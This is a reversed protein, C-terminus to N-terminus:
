THPFPTAMAADGGVAGNSNNCPMKNMVNYVGSLGLDGPDEVLPPPMPMAAVMDNGPHLIHQGVLIPESALGDCNVAQNCMSQEAPHTDIINSSSQIGQMITSKPATTADIIDDYSMEGGVSGETSQQQPQQQQTQQQQQMKQQMKQQQQQVVHQQVMQQQQKLQQQKQQQQLQHHLQQRQQMQHQQILQLQHQQQMLQQEREQQKVQPVLYNVSLVGANRDVKKEAEGNMVVAQQSNVKCNCKEQRVVQEELYGQENVRSRTEAGDTRRIESNMGGIGNQNINMDVNGADLSVPTNDIAIVDNVLQSLPDATRNAPGRRSNPDDNMMVDVGHDGNRNGGVQQSAANSNQSQFPVHSQAHAAVPAPALGPVPIPVTPNPPNPFRMQPTVPGHSITRDQTHAYSAPQAQAAGQGHVIGQSKMIQTEAEIMARGQAYSQTQLQAYSHTHTHAHPHVHSQAQAYGQAHLQAVTGAHALGQAHSQLSGHANSLSIPRLEPQTHHAAHPLQGNIVQAHRLDSRYQSGAAPFSALDLGQEMNSEGMRRRQNQVAYEQEQLQHVLPQQPPHSPSPHANKGTGYHSPGGRRKPRHGFFRKYMSSAKQANDYDQRRYPEIDNKAGEDIIARASFNLDSLNKIHEYHNQTGRSAPEIYAGDLDLRRRYMRTMVELTFPHKPAHEHEIGNIFRLGAQWRPDQLAQKQQQLRDADGIEVALDYVDVERRLVRRSAVKREEETSTGDDDEQIHPTLSTFDSVLGATYVYPQPQVVPLEIIRDEDSSYEEWELDSEVEIIEKNRNKDGHNLHDKETPPDENEVDAEDGDVYNTSEKATRPHRVRTCHVDEIDGDKVLIVDDCDHLDKNKESAIEMRRRKEEKRDEEVSDELNRRHEGTGNGSNRLGYRGGGNDNEQVIMGPEVRHARKRGRRLPQEDESDSDDDRVDIETSQPLLDPTPYPNKPLLDSDMLPSDGESFDDPAAERRVPIAKRSRPTLREGDVGRRIPSPIRRRPAAAAVMPKSQRNRDDPSSQLDSYHNSQPLSGNTPRRLGAHHRYRDRDGDRISNVNSRVPSPQDRYTERHDRDHNLDRDLGADCERSWRRGEWYNDADYLGHERGQGDDRSRDRSRTLSRSRSRERSKYRDRDRDRRWGTDRPPSNYRNPGRSHERDRSGGNWARRQPSPSKRGRHSNRPPEDPSSVNSHRRQYEQEHSSQSPRNPQYQFTQSQTYKTKSLRVPSHTSTLNRKRRAAAQALRAAEAAREAARESARKQEKIADCRQKLLDQRADGFNLVVLSLFRECAATYAVNGSPTRRNPISVRIQEFMDDIIDKQKM